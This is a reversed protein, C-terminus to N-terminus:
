LHDMCYSVRKYFRVDQDRIDSTMHKEAALEDESSRVGYETGVIFSELFCIFQSISVCMSEKNKFNRKQAGVIFTGLHRKVKLSGQLDYVISLVPVFISKERSTKGKLL